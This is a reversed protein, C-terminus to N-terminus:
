AEDDASMTPTLTRATQSALMDQPMGATADLAIQAEMARKKDEDLVMENLVAGISGDCFAEMPLISYPEEIQLGLEEIGLLFYVIISCSPITVLHNWSPDVGWIALPLLALWVGVFRSTHRTYILPIPSKFIRECAGIDDTLKSLTEDMQARDRGDLQASRITQGLKALAYAQQNTAGM